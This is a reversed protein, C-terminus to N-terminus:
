KQAGKQKVKFRKPEREKDRVITYVRAGFIDVGKQTSGIYM